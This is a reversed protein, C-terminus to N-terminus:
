SSIKGLGSFLIRVGPILHVSFGISPKTRLTGNSLQLFGKLWAEKSKGYNEMDNWSEAGCIVSAIAIFIIDDLRHDKTREGRPDTLNSFYNLPSEM